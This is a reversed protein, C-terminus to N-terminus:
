TGYIITLRFSGFSAESSCAAPVRDLRGFCCGDCVLVTQDPRQAVENQVGWLHRHRACRHTQTRLRGESSARQNPLRHARRFRNADPDKPMRGYPYAFVRTFRCGSDELARLCQSLDTEIQAASLREYSEHRHSHMGFEILEGPLQRMMEYSMLPESAGDWSALGGIFATPLFVTAKVGHKALLPYALEYTSLYGDDFTVLVPKAPLARGGDLSEKLESFSIPTYGSSKIHALQRDLGEASITLADSHQSSVKHYLLIPLGKPAPVFLGYRYVLWLLIGLCAIGGYILASSTV